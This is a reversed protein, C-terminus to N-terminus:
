NLQFISYLQLFIMLDFYIVTIHQQHVRHSTLYRINKIINVVRGHSWGEVTLVTSYTRYAIAHLVSIPVGNNKVNQEHFYRLRIM